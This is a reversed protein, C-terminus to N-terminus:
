DVGQLFDAAIKTTWPAGANKWGNITRQGAKDKDGEFGDVVTYLPLTVGAKVLADVARASRGGSRCIILVASADQADLYSQMTGVFRPNPNMQYRGKKADFSHDPALLAFPINVDASTPYGVLMTEEPTRVDILLVDERTAVVDAAEAATIYLAPMTQKGKPLADAVVTTTIMPEAIGAAPLSFVLCLAIAPAAILRFPVPM